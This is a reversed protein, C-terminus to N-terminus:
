FNERVASSWLPNWMKWGPLFPSLIKEKKISDTGSVDPVYTRVEYDYGREALWEKVAEEAKIKGEGM